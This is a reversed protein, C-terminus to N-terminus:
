VFIPSGVNTFPVNGEPVTGVSAVADITKVFIESYLFFVTEIQDNGVLAGVPLLNEM